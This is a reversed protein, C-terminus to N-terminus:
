QVLCIKRPQGTENYLYGLEKLTYAKSRPLDLNKRIEWAKLIEVEAGEWREMDMLYAVLIAIYGLCMDDPNLSTVMTRGVNQYSIELAKELENIQKLALVSNGDARIM